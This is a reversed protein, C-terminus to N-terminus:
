IDARAFHVDGVGNFGTITSTPKAKRAYESIDPPGREIRRYTTFLMTTSRQPMSQSLVGRPMWALEPMTITIASEVPTVARTTVVTPSTKVSSHQEPVSVAAARTAPARECALAVFALLAVMVILVSTFSKM